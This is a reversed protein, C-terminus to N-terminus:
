GWYKIWRGFIFGGRLFQCCSDRLRYPIPFIGWYKKTTTKITIQVHKQRFHNWYFIKNQFNSYNSCILQWGHETKKQDGSNSKEVWFIGGGWIYLWDWRFMFIPTIQLTTVDFFKMRIKISANWNCTHMQVNTKGRWKPICKMCCVKLMNWKCWYM